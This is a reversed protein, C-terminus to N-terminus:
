TTREFAASRAPRPRGVDGRPGQRISASTQHPAHNPARGAEIADAAAGDAATVQRPPVARIGHEDFLAELRSVDAGVREMADTFTRAEFSEHVDTVSWRPLETPDTITM